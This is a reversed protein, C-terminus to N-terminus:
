NSCSVKYARLSPSNGSESGGVYGSSKYAIAKVATAGANLRFQLELDELVYVNILFQSLTLVNKKKNYSITLSRKKQNPDKISVEFDNSFLDQAGPVTFRVKNKITDKSSLITDNVVDLIEVTTDLVYTGNGEHKISLGGECTFQDAETVARGLPSVTGTVKNFVFDSKFDGAVLPAAFSLLSGLYMAAFLKM